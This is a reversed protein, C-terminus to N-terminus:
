ASMGSLHADDSFMDRRKDLDLDINLDGVLVAAGNSGSAALLHDVSRGILRNRRTASFLVLNANGSSRRPM